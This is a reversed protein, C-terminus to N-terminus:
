GPLVFYVANAPREGVPPLTAETVAHLTLGGLANIADDAKTNVNDLDVATTAGVDAATLVVAGGKGNVSLVPATPYAMETWGGVVAPNGTIIFVTGRDSRIVWDGEEGAVALMAAQTAVTGKFQSVALAPLQSSLLKSDAGLTALGSAAGRAAELADIGAAAANATAKLQNDLLNRPVIWPESNEAPLPATVTPIAM